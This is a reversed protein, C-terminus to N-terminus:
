SRQGRVLRTDKQTVGTGWKLGRCVGDEQVDGGCSYQRGLLAREM